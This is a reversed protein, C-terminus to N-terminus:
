PLGNAHGQPSLPRTCFYRFKSKEAPRVKFAGSPKPKDYKPSKPANSHTENSKLKQSSSATNRTLEQLRVASIPRYIQQQAENEEERRIAEEKRGGSTEYNEQKSFNEEGHAGSANVGAEGDTAEEETGLCRGVSSVSKEHAIKLDSGSLYLIRFHGRRLCNWRAIFFDGLLTCNWVSQVKFAHSIVATTINRKLLGYHRKSKGYKVFYIGQSNEFNIKNM